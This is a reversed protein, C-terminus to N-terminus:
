ARPTGIQGLRRGVKAAHVAYDGGVWSPDPGTRWEGSYDGQEAFFEPLVKIAVNRDLGVQYCRYVTGMAGRGVEEIVDYAGIQGGPTVKV